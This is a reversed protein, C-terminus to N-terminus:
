QHLFIKISVSIRVFFGFAVDTLRTLICQLKQYVYQLGEDQKLGENTVESGPGGISAPSETLPSMWTYFIM